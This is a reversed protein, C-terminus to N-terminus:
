KTLWRNFKREIEEQSITGETKAREKSRELKEKVFLHYQIDELTCDEPLQDLLHRIEEKVTNM